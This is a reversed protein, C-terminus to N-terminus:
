SLLARIFVDKVRTPLTDGPACRYFKLLLRLNEDHKSKNESSLPFSFLAFLHRDNGLAFCNFSESQNFTLVYPGSFPTSEVM